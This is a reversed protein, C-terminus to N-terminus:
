GPIIYEEPLTRKSNKSGLKGAIMLPLTVTGIRGMYMLAIILLKGGLHLGGTVDATLGVTATASVVEYMNDILSNQPELVCLVTTGLMVLFLGTMFIAVATRVINMSIRRGFCETDERGKLISWCTLFLVAVTVTKIGGATGMPSGGVLMLMCGFFKSGETLAGQPITYFGATRTTVSQFLAAMWKSGGSLSGLTEPNNHEAGYFFLTGVLILTFTMLFVLKSQLTFRYKRRHPQKKETIQYKLFRVVDQWVIFGLGGLIILAMTVANMWPNTVFMALSSDGLLDIGANCFASVAHFVSYWLGRLAGYEPVFYFAYCLAGLGEAALTGKVVYLVMQALGQFTNTSFRGQLVVQENVTLRKKFLLRLLMGCVILGWGGIQILLLIVLKGLFTFQTAPVVTVLGTVCVSTCATFLADVFGLWQGDANCVPLMLILGGLLIAILFGPVM